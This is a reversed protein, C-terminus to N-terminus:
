EQYDLPLPITENQKPYARQLSRKFSTWNPAARMLAMVGILHAKLKPNGVDATFWQHHRHPRNGSPLPPNRRKLEDLVGRALRDYVIDNTYHGILPTRRHRDPGPWGKLKYILAYFAYPFTKTWPQLEKAIFKELITALAREERIRQYGTAEDVLAIVGVTALGQILLDARKSIHEQNSRLVGADRAALIAKCVEVLLPAPYGYVTGGGTPNQFLVPQNLAPLLDKNVFPSIVRTGMFQPIRFGADPNLGIGATLGRQSLVRTEDELVYCPIEVNGIRLPRDPAGAIVKLPQDTM